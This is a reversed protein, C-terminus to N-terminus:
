IVRVHWGDLIILFPTLPLLTETLPTYHRTSIMMNLGTLICVFHICLVMGKARTIYALM